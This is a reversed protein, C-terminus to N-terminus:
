LSIERQWVRCKEATIISMITEVTEDLQGDRNVVIYDFEDIREMEQRAIELRTRLAEESETRRATLRATLAEESEATLFILVAGPVLRRITAAGQVDLRMVVDQGSELAQWVQAKSVGKHQGYVIAHELLEDHEILREFEATSVFIYDIGDVEGPRRPRDTTTVVFHFPCGMEQMRKLTVDKGAGSPGSIVVLLPNPHQKYPEVLQSVSDGPTAQHPDIAPRPLPYLVAM